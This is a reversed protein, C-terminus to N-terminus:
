RSRWVKRDRLHSHELTVYTAKITDKDKLIKCVISKTMGFMIALDVGRTGSEYRATLNWVKVTTRVAKRKRKKIIFVSIQQISIVSIMQLLMVYAAFIAPYEKVVVFQVVFCSPHGSSQPFTCVVYLNSPSIANFTIEYLWKM